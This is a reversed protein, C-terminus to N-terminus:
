RYPWFTVMPRQTFTTPPLQSSSIILSNGVLSSSPSDTALPVFCFGCSRACFTRTFSPATICYRRKALEACDVRLDECVPMPSSTSTTTPITSTLPVIPRPSPFPLSHPPSPKRTEVNPILCMRCSVPCHERMWQPNRSCWGQSALLDCDPRTNRCLRPTTPVFPRLTSAVPQPQPFVPSTTSSQSNGGGYSGGYNPCDYLTNIKWADLKSFGVRQGIAAQRRPMITPLGNRTFANPGYHMISGYDYDSGLTQITAQSYKEFQGQMGPLINHWLIAIFDDRDPRSQEHFFGVAHMMESGYEQMASAIVSRSYSSYQSSLAYPIRANNWLQRRDRIANLQIRGKNTKSDAKEPAGRIFLAVTSANIKNAIDGEFKDLNYMAESDWDSENPSDDLEMALEFDTPTLVTEYSPVNLDYFQITDQQQENLKKNNFSQKSRIDKEIDRPIDKGIKIGEM